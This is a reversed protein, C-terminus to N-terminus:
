KYCSDLVVLVELLLPLVNIVPAPCLKIQLLYCAYIEFMGPGLIAM